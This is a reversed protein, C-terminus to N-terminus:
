PIAPGAGLYEELCLGSDKMDMSVARGVYRFHWPENIIGTIAEKEPPYRLIFGYEWCHEGLWKKAAEGTLDAAVGMEHESTGPKAASKLTELYANHESYGMDMYEQTRQEVIEIQNATSRYTSNIGYQFGAAKCDALMQQMPELACKAIQNWGTLTVIEPKWYDPIPNSANVLVVHIGQPSFHHRQGDIDQPGVAATGDEQFYFWYEDQQLWGTHPTGDEGFFYIQDELKQWGQARPGGPLFYWTKGNEEVWGEFRSGDELFYYLDDELQTPGRDATGDRDLHYVKGDLELWGTQMLGLENLYYREGELELWGTQMIGQPSFYYSGEPSEQWGTKLVGDTGFCYQANDIWDWGTSMLRTDPDFYYTNGDISAWGTVPRNHFDRYTYGGDRLQWGSRDVYNDYFYWGLVGSGTLILAALLAILGLRLRNKSKEM